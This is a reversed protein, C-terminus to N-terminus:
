LKRLHTLRPPGSALNGALIGIRSALQCPGNDYASDCVVPNCAISACACSFNNIKMGSPVAGLM